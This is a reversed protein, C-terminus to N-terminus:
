HRKGQREYWSSGGQLRAVWRMDSRIGCGKRQAGGTLLSPCTAAVKSMNVEKSSVSRGVIDIIECIRSIRCTSSCDDKQGPTSAATDMRSLDVYLQLAGCLLVSFSGRVTGEHGLVLALVEENYPMHSFALMVVLLVVKQLFDWLFGLTLKSDGRGM